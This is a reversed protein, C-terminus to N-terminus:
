RSFMDLLDPAKKAPSSAPTAPPRRQARQARIQQVKSKHDAVNKEMVSANIGEALQSDEVFDPEARASRRQVLKKGERSAEAKRPQRPPGLKNVEEAAQMLDKMM